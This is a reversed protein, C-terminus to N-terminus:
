SHQIRPKTYRLFTLIKSPHLLDRTLVQYLVFFTLLKCFYRLKSVKNGHQTLSNPPLHYSNQDWVLCIFVIGLTRPCGVNESLNTLLEAAAPVLCSGAGLMEVIWHSECECTGALVVVVLWCAMYWCKTWKGEKTGLGLYM